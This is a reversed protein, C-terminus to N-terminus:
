DQPTEEVEPLSSDKHSLANYNVLAASLREHLRMRLRDPSLVTIDQGFSLILTELEYNLKVHLSVILSDAHDEIVKATPHMKKSRVYPVSTGSVELTVQEALEEGPNPLTIGVLNSFFSNIDKRTNKQFKLESPHSYLIRELSLVELKGECAGIVYWRYYSQKLKYPSFGNLQQNGKGFPSYHIDLAYKKRIARYIDELHYDYNSLYQNHDFEIQSKAKDAVGDTLQLKNVLKDLEPIFAFAKFYNTLPKLALLGDVEEPAVKLDPLMLLTSNLRFYRDSYKEIKIKRGAWGEKELYERDNHFTSVTIPECGHIGLTKNANEILAEATWMKDAQAFCKVYALLRILFVRTAGM